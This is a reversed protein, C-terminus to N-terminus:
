IGSATAVRVAFAGYNWNIKSYPAWVGFGKDGWDTGWSNLDLGEKDNLHAVKCVAHGNAGWVVPFGSLLCSVMEDISTVDYFEEIKYSKAAEVAEESPKARWGLKRPHLSEPAIGHERVFELNEDISSGSDRGGSTVRYIFWPNLLVFPLGATARGIMVGGTPSETACSGVGNQDLVQQVFPRLNTQKAYDDWENRPIIKIREAAMPCVEGVKSKRPLCGMAKGPPVVMEFPEGNM